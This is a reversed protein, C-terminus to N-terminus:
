YRRAVYCRTYRVTAYTGEGLKELQQFSSPHRRNDMTSAAPVTQGGGLNRVSITSDTRNAVSLTGAHTPRLKGPPPRTTYKPDWLIASATTLQNAIRLQPPTSRAPEPSSNPQATKATSLSSPLADGLRSLPGLYFHLSNNIALLQFVAPAPAPAPISCLAILRLKHPPLHLRPASCSVEYRRVM